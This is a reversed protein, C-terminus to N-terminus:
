ALAQRSAAEADIVDLIAAATAALPVGDKRARLAAAQDRIVPHDFILHIPVDIGLLSELMSVVRIAHLSHAGLQLIDDGHDVRERKLFTAWVTRLLRDLATVDSAAAREDAAAARSPLLPNLFVFRVEVGEFGGADAVARGLALADPEGVQETLVFVTLQDDRGPDAVVSARCVGAQRQVITVLTEGRTGAQMTM